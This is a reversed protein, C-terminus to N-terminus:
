NEEFHKTEFIKLQEYLKKHLDDWKKANNTQAACLLLLDILEHRTIKITVSRENKM